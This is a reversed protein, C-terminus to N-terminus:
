TDQHPKSLSDILEKSPHFFRMMGASTHARFRLTHIDKGGSLRWVNERFVGNASFNRKWTNDPLIEQDWTVSDFSRRYRRRGICWDTAHLIIPWKGSNLIRIQSWHSPDGVRVELKLCKAARWNSFWDMGRLVLSTPPIPSQSDPIPM